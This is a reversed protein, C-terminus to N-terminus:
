AVGQYLDHTDIYDAVAPPVWGELSQGASVRARVETSSVPATHADVLFIGPHTSPGSASSERMRHALTPLQRPLDTAPHGPRSVAIFPCRDLLRTAEMWSFVGAFADAGTILHLTSLDWGLAALRDLTTMTYSTGPETTEIDSVRLWDHGEAALATMALRHETPATPVDKQPPLGAPVLYVVDLKMATRAAHAVDLHGCHIPDFTGGLWGL